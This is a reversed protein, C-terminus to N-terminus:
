GHTPVEEKAAKPKETERKAKGEEARPLAEEVPLPDVFPDVSRSFLPLTGQEPLAPSETSTSSEQPHPTESSASPAPSEFSATSEPTEATPEMSDKINQTFDALINSETLNSKIEELDRTEAEFSEKVEDTAKKFERMAKGFAKALEPLKNPGFVILAIALIILLEPVGINFM